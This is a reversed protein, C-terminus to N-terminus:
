KLYGIGEKLPLRFETGACSYLFVVSSFVERAVCGWGGPTDQRHIRTQEKELAGFLSRRPGASAEHRQAACPRAMGFACVAILFTRSPACPEKGAGVHRASWMRRQCAHSERSCRPHDGGYRRWQQASEGRTPCNRNGATAPGAGCQHRPRSAHQTYFRRNSDTRAVPILRGEHGLLRLTKVSVGLLKAVKGTSITNEMHM